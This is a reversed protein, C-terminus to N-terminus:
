VVFNGFNNRILQMLSYNSDGDVSAKNIIEDLLEAKLEDQSYKICKELVNSGYKHTALQLAHKKLARIVVAKDKYDGLEIIHSIVYNGYQDKTLDLCRDYCEELLPQLQDQACKEIIRQM